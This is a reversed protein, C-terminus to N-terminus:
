HTQPAPMCASVPVFPPVAGEYVAFYAFGENLEYRIAGDALDIRDFVRYTYDGGAAPMRPDAPISMRAFSLEEIISALPGGEKHAFLVHRRERLNPSTMLAHGLLAALVEAACPSVAILLKNM